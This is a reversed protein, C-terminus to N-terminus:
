FYEVPGNMTIETRESKLFFAKLPIRRDREMPMHGAQIQCDPHEETVSLSPQSFLLSRTHFWGVLEIIKRKLPLPFRLCNGGWVHIQQQTHNRLIKTGRHCDNLIGTLFEGHFATAQIFQKFLLGQGTLRSLRETRENRL